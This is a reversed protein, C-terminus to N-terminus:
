SILLITLMKTYGVNDNYSQQINLISSLNLPCSSSMKSFLNLTSSKILLAIFVKIHGSLIYKSNDFCNQFFNYFKNLGLEDTVCSNGTIHKLGRTIYLM